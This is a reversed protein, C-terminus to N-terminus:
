TGDTSDALRRRIEDIEAVVGAIDNGSWAAWERFLREALDRVLWAWRQVDLWQPPDSSVVLGELEQELASAEAVREKARELEAQRAPIEMGHFAVLEDTLSALRARVRQVLADAIADSRADRPGIMEAIIEPGDFRQGADHHLRANTADVERDITRQDMDRMLAAVRAQKAAVDDM